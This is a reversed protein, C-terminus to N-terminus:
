QIVLYVEYTVEDCLAVYSINHMMQHGSFTLLM